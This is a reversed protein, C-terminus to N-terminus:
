NGRGAGVNADIKWEKGERRLPIPQTVGIAHVKAVARDGAIKVSLVKADKFRDTYRRIEPRSRAKGIASPCDETGSAKALKQAVDSALDACASEKDGNAFATYYDDLTAKIQDEDSQGGGSSGCGSLVLTACAVLALSSRM